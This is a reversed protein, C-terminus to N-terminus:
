EPAMDTDGSVWSSINIEFYIESCIVVKKRYKGKGRRQDARNLIVYHQM